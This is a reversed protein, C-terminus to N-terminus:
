YERSPNAELPVRVHWNALCAFCFYIATLSWLLKYESQITQIPAGLQTVRLFAAVGSTSPIAQSILRLWPPIAEPPWAFGVLFVLPLSTFLLTLIAIERSLFFTSFAIALFTSALLYPALLIALEWPQCRLPFGYYVHIMGLNYLTTFIAITFYAGSRGVVMEINEIFHTRRVPVHALFERRAGGVMGVGLLITQQIIVMFVAPIAYPGYGGGPNYLPVPVFSLPDATKKAKAFSLGAAELKRIQIGAGLTRATLTVGTKLPTFFVLTSTDYYAAVTAKAGRRIEREFGQPVVIIGYVKRDLFESRAAEFDKPRSAISLNENADLMRTFKRSLESFDNDVLAVPVKRLVQAHYPVPYFFSYLVVAGILLIFAGQNKAIARYEHLWFHIM